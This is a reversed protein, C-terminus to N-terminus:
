GPDIWGAQAVLALYEERGAMRDFESPHRRAALAVAAREEPRGSLVPAAAAIARMEETRGNCHLVLDCGADYIAAARQGYDGSLAHMSVDDGLLLGEFGIRQRIMDGIVASSTTAPAFRDLDAYVVHATMAAVMPQLRAFPVVDTEGLVEASEEVVPLGMHSDSTARGQGPIHKAVPVVGGSLLGSMVERGLTAVLNPDGGFSRDGIADSTTPTRVDLVPACDIDIGVDLLGAAILRGQLWAARRGAGQDIAAVEGIVGAAAFRPWHPPRLRQVRGGEEDILVPADARGVADRFAACLDALQNPEVCNRAFLILGFPQEAHFFVREEETLIPGTCGAVFAKVGSLDANAHRRPRPSM